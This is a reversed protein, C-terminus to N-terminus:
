GSVQISVLFQYYHNEGLFSFDVKVNGQNSNWSAQQVLYGNHPKEAPDNFEGIGSRLKAPRGLIQSYSDIMETSATLYSNFNNKTVENQYANFIFWKLTDGTFSYTWKGPLNFETAGRVYRGPTEADAQLDPYLKKLDALGMGVWAKLPSDAAISPAKAASGACGGLVLLCAAVVLLVPKSVASVKM